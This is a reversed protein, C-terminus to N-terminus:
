YTCKSWHTNSNRMSGYWVLSHGESLPKQLDTGLPSQDFQRITASPPLLLPLMLVVSPGEEMIADGNQPMPFRYRRRSQRSIDFWNASDMYAFLVNIAVCIENNM